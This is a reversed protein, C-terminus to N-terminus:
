TSILWVLGHLMAIRYCVYIALPCIFIRIISYLASVMCICVHACAPNFDRKCRTLVHANTVVLWLRAKFSITKSLDTLQFDESKLTFGTSIDM